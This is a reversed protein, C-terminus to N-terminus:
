AEGKARAIAARARRWPMCDPCDPARCDDEITDIIEELAELLDPAAAILRADLQGRATKMDFFVLALTDGDPGVQLLRTDKGIAPASTLRTGSVQWPGKTHGAGRDTTM